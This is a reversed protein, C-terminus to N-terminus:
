FTNIIIKTISSLHSTRAYDSATWFSLVKSERPMMPKSYYRQHKVKLNISADRLKWHERELAVLKRCLSKYFLQRRTDTYCISLVYYQVALSALRHCIACFFCPGYFHHKLDIYFRTYLYLLYIGSLLNHQVSFSALM